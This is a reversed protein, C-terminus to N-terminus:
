KITQNPKVYVCDAENSPSAKGHHVTGVRGKPGPWRSSVSDRESKTQQQAKEVVAPTDLKSYGDSLQGKAQKTIKIETGLREPLEAERNYWEARDKQNIPM